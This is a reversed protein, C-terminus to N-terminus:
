ESRERFIDRLFDFPAPVLVRALEAKTIYKERKKGREIADLTGAASMDRVDQPRRKLIKTADKVGYFPEDLSNM